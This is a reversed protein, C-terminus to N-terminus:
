DQSIGVKVILSQTSSYTVVTTTRITFFLTSAACVFPINQLTKSAIGVLLSGGAQSTFDATAVNIKGLYLLADATAFSQTADNTYTGTPSSTFFDIELTPRQNNIDVIQLDCIFGTGATNRVANAISLIGGINDGVAYATGNTTTIPIVAVKTFGGVKLGLTSTGGGTLTNWITGLDLSDFQGANTYVGAVYSM